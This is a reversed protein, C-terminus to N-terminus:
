VSSSAAGPSHPNVAQLWPLQKQPITYGSTSSWRAHALPSLDCCLDGWNHPYNVDEWARYQKVKAEAGIVDFVSLQRGPSKRGQYCM